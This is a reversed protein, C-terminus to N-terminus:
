RLRVSFHGVVLGSGLFPLHMSRNGYLVEGSYVGPCPQSGPRGNSMQMTFTLRRGSAVDEDLEGGSSGGRCPDRMAIAYYNATNTTPARAVFSVRVVDEPPLPPDHEDHVIRASVPARVEAETPRTLAVMGIPACPRGRNDRDANAGVHCVSGDRYSIARIPQYRGSPLQPPGGSLDAPGLAELSAGPPQTAVILYTGQPGVTPVTVMPGNLAYATRTSAAGRDCSNPKAPASRVRCRSVRGRVAVTRLSYSISEVEPGLAGYFLLREDARPCLAMGPDGPDRAGAEYEARPMCAPPYASAPVLQSQVAEFLRGDADLSACGELGAVADQLSFPHFRHDDGFAGDQGLVGLQGDYLRGYQLCGAGRTTSVTRLGWPLGGAPDAVSLGLLRASAGIPVGDGRQPQPAFPPTVPAGSLLGDALAVAAAAALAVVLALAVRVNFAALRRRTRSPARASGAGLEGARLPVQARRLGLEVRLPVQARRVGLEVRPPTRASGREQALFLRHLEEGMEALLPLEAPPRARESM